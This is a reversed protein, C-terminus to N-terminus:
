DDVYILNVEVNVKRGVGDFPHLHTEDVFLHDIRVRGILRGSLASGLRQYNVAEQKEHHQRLWDVADLGKIVHPYTVAELRTHKPGMGTTQYDMGGWTPIGPVRAESDTGIRQPNLGVVKLVAKGISLLSTQDSM